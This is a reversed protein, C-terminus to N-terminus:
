QGAPASPAANGSDPVAVTGSDNTVEVQVAPAPEPTQAPDEAPEKGGCAAVAVLAAAMMFKRM